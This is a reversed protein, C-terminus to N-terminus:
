GKQEAEANLQALYADDSLGLMAAVGKQDATLTEVKGGTEPPKDTAHTKGLNPLMEILSKAREPDEVHLAVMDDRKDAPIGVGAAMQADIFAESKMKAMEASLEAVSGAETVKEQLSAALITLEAVGTEPKAGLAEALASLEAPKDAGKLKKIAALIDGEKADEGLGLAKAIKSFDMESVESTLTALQGLLAPFNTLSGHWIRRIKSNDEPDFLLVPSFGRYARDAMQKSGLESWEVRGWLGDERAQMEVIDGFAPAEGGKPGARLTSHNVDIFLKPGDAAFSAAILEEASDYSWPGRGDITTFPKGPPPLMHVWEPAGKGEPLETADLAQITSTTFM